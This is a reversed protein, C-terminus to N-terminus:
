SSRIYQVYARKAIQTYITIEKNIKVAEEINWSLKPKVGKATGSINRIHGKPVRFAYLMIRNLEDSGEINRLLQLTNGQVTGSVKGSQGKQYSPHM